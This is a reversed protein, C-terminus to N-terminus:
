TTMAMAMGMTMTATKNKKVNDRKVPGSIADAYIVNFFHIRLPCQIWAMGGVVRMREHAFTLWCKM